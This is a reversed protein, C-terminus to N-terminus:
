ARGVRKLGVELARQSEKFISTKICAPCTVARTDNSRQYNPHYPTQHFETMNPMCAIRWDEGLGVTYTFHILTILQGNSSIQEM